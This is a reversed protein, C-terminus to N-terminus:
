SEEHFARIATGLVDPSDDSHGGFQLWKQLKKHFMLLVKTKEGNVIMMSATIHGDEWHFNHFVNESSNLFSQIKESIEKTIPRKGNLLYSLMVHTLGLKNSFQRISLKSDKLLKRLEELSIISVAFIQNSLLM